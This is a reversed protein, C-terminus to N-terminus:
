RYGGRLSFVGQVLCHENNMMLRLSEDVYIAGTYIPSSKVRVATLGNVVTDEDCLLDLKPRKLLIELNDSDKKFMIHPQETYSQGILLPFKM